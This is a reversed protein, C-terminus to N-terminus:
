QVSGFISVGYVTGFCFAYIGGGYYYHMIVAKQTINSSKDNYARGCIISIIAASIKETYKDSKRYFISGLLSFPEIGM